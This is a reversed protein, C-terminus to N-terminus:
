LGPKRGLPSAFNRRGSRSLPRSAMSRAKAGVPLLAQVHRSRRRGLLNLNPEGRAFPITGSSSHGARFRYRPKVAAFYRYFANGSFSEFCGCAPPRKASFTPILPSGECATQQIFRNVPIALIIPPRLSVVAPEYSVCFQSGGM